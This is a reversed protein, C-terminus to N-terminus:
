SSLELDQLVITDKKFDICACSHKLKDSKIFNVYFSFSYLRLM